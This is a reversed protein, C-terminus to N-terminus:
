EGTNRYIETMAILRSDALGATRAKSVDGSKPSSTMELFAKRSRSEVPIVADGEEDEGGIEVAEGGIGASDARGQWLIRGGVQELMSRVREGYRTYSDRGSGEGNGGAREAFRLLNLMVVPTELDSEVLAKIQEKTPGTPMPENRERTVGPAGRSAEPRARGPPQRLPRRCPRVAGVPVRPRGVTEPIPAPGRRRSLARGPHRRLHHPQTAGRARPRAPCRHGRASPRPVGGPRQAAGGHQARVDHVALRRPLDVAHADRLRPVPQGVRVARTPPELRARRSSAGGADVAVARRRRHRLVHA